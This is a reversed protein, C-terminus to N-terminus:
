GSAASIVLVSRRGRRGVVQADLERRPAARQDRDVVDREVDRRALHEADDALGAGALRHGAGGDDAQDLRGAADGAALDQQSPSRM